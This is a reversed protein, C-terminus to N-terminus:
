KQKVKAEEFYITSELVYEDDRNIAPKAATPVM